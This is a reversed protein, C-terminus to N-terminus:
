SRSLSSLDRNEELIGGLEALEKYKKEQADTPTKTSISEVPVVTKKWPLERPDKVNLSLMACSSFYDENRLISSNRACTEEIALLERGVAHLVKQLLQFTGLGILELKALQGELSFCNISIVRKEMEKQCSIQLNEYGEEFDSSNIWVWLRRFSSSHKMKGSKESLEVGHKNSDNGIDHQGFPAIPQSVPAGCQHLKRTSVFSPPLGLAQDYCFGNEPNKKLEYRRHVCRPLKKQHNEELGSKALAKDIIGLKQRKRRCGKRAIQNDFVTTRRKNKQSRYDSNVRNEIISQLSHLKLACSEAYKQLNIKWPPPPTPVSVQPKKTGDTVMTFFKWTLLAQHHQVTPVPLATCSLHIFEKDGLHLFPFQGESSLVTLCNLLVDIAFYDSTGLDVSSLPTDVSRPLTLSEQHPNLTLNSLPPNDLTLTTDTSRRLPPDVVFTAWNLMDTVKPPSICTLSTLIYICSMSPCLEVLHVLHTKLIPCSSDFYTSSKSHAFFMTSLSFWLVTVIHERPSGRFEDNTRHELIWVMSCGCSAGVRYITSSVIAIDGVAADFVDSTIMNVLDCYSPNKDGDGFLIFKYQVAYPLLKFAALFIDICYGQIANTGNIQSIM